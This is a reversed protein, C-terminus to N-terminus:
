LLTLLSRRCYGAAPNLVAIFEGQCTLLPPAFPRGGVIPTWCSCFTETFIAFGEQCAVFITTCNLCNLPTGVLSVLPHSRYVSYFFVVFLWRFGRLERLFPISLGFPKHYLLYLLHPFPLGLCPAGVLALLVSERHGSRVTNTHATYLHSGTGRRNFYYPIICSVIGCDEYEGKQTLARRHFDHPM